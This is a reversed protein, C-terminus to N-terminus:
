MSWGIPLAKLREAHSRTEAPLDRPLEAILSAVIREALPSWM